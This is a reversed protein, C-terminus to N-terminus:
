EKLSIEKQNGVVVLAYHDPHLYKKAVRLVDEQTVRNIEGPYNEFYDLGLGHFEVSALIAAAKKTTDIKLPFSGSLYAKAESLELPSVGKKQIENMMGLVATVAEKINSNQTQFSVSFDGPFANATFHSYISYVLGRNDRIETMMRSAFGGGLIYNMVLVPYYDPHSRNIGPHGLIVTAQTLTKDIRHVRIKQLPSVPDISPFTLHKQPWEGFYRRILNKVEEATVNGAFAIITNNPRYYQQHFQILDERRITPVSNENGVVAQHYPHNRFVAKQFARRAIAGPQDKEARISGLVQKQIRTLEEPDFDPHMLMDSLIEFGTELDKKLIRLRLSAYDKSAYTSLDAGIFEISESIAMASRNRTGQELLNATMSALGAKDQTDLISGARVLVQVSVIPLSPQELVLVTMGNKTIFRQPQISAATSAAPLCFLFFLWGIFLSYFLYRAQRAQFILTNM